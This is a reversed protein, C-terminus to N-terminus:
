RRENQREKLREILDAAVASDMKGLSRARFNDDLGDLVAVALVPDMKEIIAAANKPSMEGFTTILATVEGTDASSSGGRAQDRSIADLRASVEAIADSLEKEKTGLDKSLVQMAADEQDLMRRRRAISEEWEDLELRRREEASLSYIAPVNLLETLKPGVGPIRPIISYVVPRFDYAGSMQLGAAAGAALILMMFLFGHGKKKKQAPKKSARKEGGDDSASTEDAPAVNVEEAM